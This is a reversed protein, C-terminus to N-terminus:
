FVSWFSSPHCNVFSYLVFCFMLLDVYTLDRNIPKNILHYVFRPLGYLDKSKEYDEDRIFSEVSALTNRNFTVVDDM